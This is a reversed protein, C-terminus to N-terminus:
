DFIGREYFLHNCNAGRNERRLFQFLIDFLCDEGSDGM